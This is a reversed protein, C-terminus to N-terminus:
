SWGARELQRAGARLQEAKRGMEMADSLRGARLYLISLDRYLRSSSPEGKIKAELASIESALDAAILTSEMLSATTEKEARTTRRPAKDAGANGRATHSPATVLTLVPSGAPTQANDPAAASGRDSKSDYAPETHVPAIIAPMADLILRGSPTNRSPVPVPLEEEAPQSAIHELLLSRFDAEYRQKNGPVAKMAQDYLRRIDEHRGTQLLAAGLASVIDADHARQNLAKQFAQIATATQGMEALLRGLKLNLAPHAPQALLAASLISVAIDPKGQRRRVEAMDEIAAADNPDLRLATALLNDAGQTDGRKLSLSGLAAHSHPSDPKLEIAKGYAIAAEDLRGLAEFIMGHTRQLVDDTPSLYVAERSEVSAEAYRGLRYLTLALYGHATASRPNGVLSRRLTSEAKALGGEQLFAVGSAETESARRIQASNPAIQDNGQRRGGFFPV